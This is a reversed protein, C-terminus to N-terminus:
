PMVINAIDASSIAKHSIAAFRLAHRQMPQDTLRFARLNGGIRAQQPDAFGLQNCAFALGHQSLTVLRDLQMLGRRRRYKGRALRDTGANRQHDVHITGQIALGRDGERM